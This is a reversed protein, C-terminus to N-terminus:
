RLVRAPALDRERLEREGVVLIGAFLCLAGSFAIERVIRYREILEIDVSSLFAVQLAIQVFTLLLWVVAAISTSRRQAAAALAWVITGHGVARCIAEVHVWMAGPSWGPPADSTLLLVIWATFYVSAIAGIFWATFGLVTWPPLRKRAMWAVAALAVIDLAVFGIIMGALATPPVSTDFLLAFGLLGSVALAFVAIRVSVPM